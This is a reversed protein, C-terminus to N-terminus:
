GPESQDMDPGLTGRFQISKYVTKYGYLNLDLVGRIQTVDPMKLKNIGDPFYDGQDFCVLDFGHPLKAKIHNRASGMYEWDVERPNFELLGEPEVFGDGFPRYNEIENFYEAFLEMDIDSDADESCTSLVFDPTWVEEPPRCEAVRNKIWAMLDCCAKANDITVGFAGEHGAPHVSDLDATKTLFPFWEPSRGSGGYTGDPLGAVVLVPEGTIKMIDQALLGRIGAGADTVFIYPAWPQDFKGSMLDDGAERELRRRRDNLKLIFDISREASERDGFFVTYAYAVKENMRKISNFAPGAYFSFLDEHITQANYFKGNDHFKSLILYLGAFARKYMTCGPIGNVEGMGGAYIRRCIAVADRVIARNEYLLPMKDTMTGIGAFVRLRDIQDAAADTKPYFHAAFYRLVLYMVHAGCIFGYHEEDTDCMPDVAASCSPLGADSPIHHDTILVELGYDTVAHKLTAFESIGVDGTLICKASPYQAVLRDIEETGIGYTTTDPFFLAVRFGLESLGAFGTVGTMIGDMDFDTVLVILEGTQRYHDLRECLAPIGSPLAHPTSNIQRLWDDTIGRNKLLAKILKNM